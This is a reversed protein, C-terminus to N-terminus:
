SKREKVSAQRRVSGLTGKPMDDGLHGSVTVRGPKMRAGVSVLPTAVDSPDNGTQIIGKEHAAELADSVPLAGRSLHQALSEGDIFELVLYKASGGASARCSRSPLRTDRARYVEGMGGQGILAVVDYAGLRVGPTLSM